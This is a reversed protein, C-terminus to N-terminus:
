GAAGSVETHPWQNYLNIAVDPNDALEGATRRGDTRRFTANGYFRYQWKHLRSLPSPNLQSLFGHDHKDTRVQTDARM